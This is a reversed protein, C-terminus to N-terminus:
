SQGFIIIGNMEPNTNVVGYLVDLTYLTKFTSNDFKKAMVVELGQDTSGRMVDVGSNTPVAYRGPLLEVSDKHWFPNCATAAGNLPTITATASTSVVEINKYQKEADTPSSNAGIMPPSIELTTGGGPVSIVRFTKLQGTNEKTIQHVAFIGDITFCDGATFGASSSVTV